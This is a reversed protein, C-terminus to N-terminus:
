RTFGREARVLGEQTELLKTETSSCLTSGSSGCLDHLLGLKLRVNPCKNTHHGKEKCYFCRGEDMLKKKDTESLNGGLHGMSLDM